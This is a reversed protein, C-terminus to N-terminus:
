NNIQKSRVQSLIDQFEKFTMDTVVDDIDIHVEAEHDATLHKLGELALEVDKSNLKISIAYANTMHPPYDIVPTFVLDCRAPTQMVFSYNKITSCDALYFLYGVGFILISTLTLLLIIHINKFTKM